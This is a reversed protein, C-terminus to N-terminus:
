WRYAVGATLTREAGYFAAYTYSVYDEDTLNTANLTLDWPGIEYGLMADFLTYSPSVVASDFLGSVKDVYRAGAGVRLQGPGVEGFRHNGWVSFMNRPMGANKQGLNASNSKTVEADTYAYSATISSHDGLDTKAELELGRSRVEGTQVQRTADVPNPTLVNKQTLQYVAASLLTNSGAPQYRIGLEYQEGETPKFASGNDNGSQPEFSESYSIFPALGNDALYVLGARGTFVSDQSTYKEAVFLGEDVSRARDERGGLLLVWKGDFKIQDQLYLGTQEVRTRSSYLNPTATSSVSGTSPGYLNLPSATRLYRESRHYKNSYDLGGLLVHEFRGSHQRWELQTDALINHSNDQRDQATRSITGTAADYAELSVAPMDNESEFYRLNQRVKLTDSFAHEFLYGINWFTVDTKDYGPVGTFLHRSIHGFPTGNITGEAPLGYVYTTRSKQYTAQLTVSTADDPRWTLAPAIYTRDDPVHDVMTDSDRQLATLRYSLSGDETLSGGHDTALQRRNNSGVEAKIEHREETTPLKSVVNIIGGPAAQGFLVSAAGRLVEVREMGYPEQTGDYINSMYRMGDRYTSNAIQFGRLVFTDTTRDDAETAIVGATYGLVDRLSQAHTDTIQDRTVVSISQPTEIIPTDTKTATSGAKAVYGDVPGWASQLRNADINVDSLNLVGDSPVPLLTVARPSTRSYTLGSSALLRQLAQEATLQGHVAPASGTLPEDSTRLVAIGTIATFEGLADLLPQAAIAFTFRQDSEHQQGTTTEAAPTQAYGPAAIVALLASALLSRSLPRGLARHNYM